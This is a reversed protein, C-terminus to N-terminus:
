GGALGSVKLQQGGSSGGNVWFSLSAFAGANMDAHELYLAAWAANLTVALSSSGGHVPSSQGFNVTSNWSWDAWGNQLSDSYILQNSQARGRVLMGALIFFSVVCIRRTAALCLRPQMTGTSRMFHARRFHRTRGGVIANRGEPHVDGALTRSLTSLIQM